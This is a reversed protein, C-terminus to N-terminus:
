RFRFTASAGIMRPAGTVPVLLPGAPLGYVSGFTDYVENTLNNGFIALEWRDNNPTLAIRGSLLGFGEQKFDARNEPALFYGSSGSWTLVFNLDFDKVNMHYNGSVSYTFEPVLAFDNASLDERRATVPDVFEWVKYKADTYGLGGRLVFNRVPTFSVELEAGNVRASEANSVFVSPAGNIIRVVQRQLGKYDGFYVSADIRLKREFLNAKVGAEYQLLTEPDFPNLFGTQVSANFGGSKQGKAVRAYVNVLDAVEYDASAEWSIYDFKASAIADCRGPARLSLNVRCTQLTDTAGRYVASRLKRKDFTQRVGGAVSLRDNAQFTVHGFAAYSQNRVFSLSNSRTSAREPNTLVQIQAEEEFFNAGVVWDLKDGLSQGGLKVEAFYQNQKNPMSANAIPAPTGDQDITSRNEIERYGGTLDLLVADSIDWSLKGTFNDFQTSDIGGEIVGLTQHRKLSGPAPLLSPDSIIGLARATNYTFQIAAPVGIPTAARGNSSEDVGDYSLFLEANDSLNGQLSVRWLKNKANNLNDFGSLLNSGYGDRDYQQYVGRVAWDNAIPVNLIGHFGFGDYNGIRVGVEGEFRGTPRKTTILVAGGVSNRGFLTGQPGRLVQLSELDMLDTLAGATRGIYVDNIYIGVGPDFVPTTDATAVGRIKIVADRSGRSGTSVTLNPVTSLVERTNIAGQERLTEGSIVTVSLPVDQLRELRRRATVVIEGQQGPESAVSNEPAQDDAAHAAVPCALAISLVGMSVAPLLRNRAIRNEGKFGLVIRYTM